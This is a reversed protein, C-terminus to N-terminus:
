SDIRQLYNVLEEALRKHDGSWELDKLRNIAIWEVHDLDDGAKPAGFTYKCHFFTTLIKSGDTDRWDKVRSTCIYHLSGEANLGTEEQLERRAAAEASQDNIDVFGGPFSWVGGMRNKKGLLVENGRTMAIDVTPSVRPRQNASAYIIGARFQPSDIVCHGVRNRVKTGTEDTVDDVERVKYKGYYHPEFGDRGCYVTVLNQEAFIPCHDKIQQDLLRSWVGDSPQDPLGVIIAMPWYGSLMLNRVAFDLPDSPTVLSPHIGVFILQKQHRAAHNLIELHGAHLSHVQFRGVVVGVGPLTTM